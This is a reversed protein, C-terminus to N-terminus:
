GRDERAREAARVRRLLAAADGLGAAEYVGPYAERILEIHHGAIVLAIGDPVDHLDLLGIVASALEGANRAGGRLMARHHAERRGDPVAAEFTAGPIYNTYTLLSNVFRQLAQPSTEARGNETDNVLVALESRATNLRERHYPEIPIVGVRENEQREAHRAVRALNLMAQPIGEGTVAQRIVDQHVVWSTTHAGMTGSFPSPSRGALLVQRIVGDPGLVAQTALPSRAREEELLADEDPESSHDTSAPTGSHEAAAPGSSPGPAAGATMPEDLQMQEFQGVLNGLDTIEKRLVPIEAREKKTTLSSTLRELRGERLGMIRKAEQVYKDALQRVAPRIRMALQVAARERGEDGHGWAAVFADPFALEVSRLHQQVLENMRQELGASDPMGPAIRGLTHPDPEAVVWAAAQTDFLDLVADQLDAQTRNVARDEFDALLRVPGAEAKGKGATAPSVERVNITTLPILERYHLYADAFQQLLSTGFEPNRVRTLLYHLDRLEREAEELRRRHEPPLHDTLRAGPLERVAGILGTLGTVADAPSHARLTRTLAAVQVAFATSHDGMTGSYPSPPRGVVTVNSIRGDPGTELQTVLGQAREPAEPRHLLDSADYHSRSSSYFVTVQRHAPDGFEVPAQRGEPTVIRLRIGLAHAVLPAFMEGEATAWHTRWNAVADVLGAYDDRTLHAAPDGRLVRYAHTIENPLGQPDRAALYQEVVRRLAEHEELTHLGHDTLLGAVGRPDSTAVARLLCFGDSDVSVLNGNEPQERHGGSSSSEEQGGPGGFRATDEMPRLHHEGPGALHEAAHYGPPLDGSPLETRVVTGDEGLRHGVWHGGPVVVPRGHADIGVDAAVLLHGPGDPNGHDPVFWVPGTAAHIEPTLGHEALHALVEAVQTHGGQSALDCAVFRLTTRGDWGGSRHWEVLRDALRRPSLPLQADKTHLAVLRVAPDHPFHALADATAPDPAEGAPWFPADASGPRDAIPHEADPGSHERQGFSQPAPKGWAGKAQPKVPQSSSEPAGAEPKQSEAGATTAADSPRAVPAVTKYAIQHRQKRGRDDTVTVDFTGDVHEYGYPIAVNIKAGGFTLERSPPVKGDDKPYAAVVRIGPYAQNLDRVVDKCSECTGKTSFVTFTGSVQNKEKFGWSELQRYAANLLTVEADKRQYGFSHDAAPKRLEAAVEDEARAYEKLKEFAQKHLDAARKHLEAMTERPENRTKAAKVREQIDVVQRHLEVAEGHRTEALEIKNWFERPDRPRGGEDETTRERATAALAVADDIKKAVAALHEGAAEREAPKTVWTDLATFASKYGAVAETLGTSAAKHQAAAERLVTAVKEARWKEASQYGKGQKIAREDEPWSQAKLEDLRTRDNLEPFQKAGNNTRKSTWVYPNGAKDQGELRLHGVAFTMGPHPGPLIENVLPRLVEEDTLVVPKPDEGEPSLLVGHAEHAGHATTAAPNLALEILDAESVPHSPGEPEPHPEGTATRMFERFGGYLEEEARTRSVPNAPAPHGAQPDPGYLRELLPLLEPDNRRVWDAGNNRASRTSPDNGHNTGLYANSLQAFYEYEDASSYNGVLEDAANRRGGDPWAAVPEEGFLDTLGDAQRKGRYAERVLAHEDGTLGFKHIAHALEHTTTSYGEPHTSARGLTTTAGLLNEETVVVIKRSQM